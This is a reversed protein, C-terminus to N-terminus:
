KIYQLEFGKEKSPLDVDGSPAVNFDPWVTNQLEKVWTNSMAM